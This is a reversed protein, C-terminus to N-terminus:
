SGSPRQDDDQNERDSCTNQNIQTTLLLRLQPDLNMPFFTQLNTCRTDPITGGAPLREFVVLRQNPTQRIRFVYNM